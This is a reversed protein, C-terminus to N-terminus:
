GGLLFDGVHQVKVVRLLVLHIADAEQVPQCHFSTM